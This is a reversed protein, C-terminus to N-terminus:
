FRIRTVGGNNTGIWLNGRKGEVISLIYNDYLGDWRGLKEWRGRRYLLLGKKRTGLFIGGWRSNYVDTPTIGGIGVPTMLMQWRGSSLRYVGRSGAIMINGLYDIGLSPPIINKSYKELERGGSLFRIGIENYESGTTDPSSSDEFYSSAITVEKWSDESFKAIVGDVVAWVVGSADVEMDNVHKGPLYREDSHHIWRDGEFVLIGSDYTGFWVRGSSDAEVAVFYETPLGQRRDFIEWKGGMRRLIGFRTTLWLTGEETEILDTVSGEYWQQPLEVSEVRRDNLKFIKKKTIFFVERHNDGVVLVHDSPFSQPIIYEDVGYQSLCFVRGDTTGLFCNGTLDHHISKFNIGTLDYGELQYRKWGSGDFYSIGGRCAAWIFGDPGLNFAHIDRSPLGQRPGYVRVRGLDLITAGQRPISLFVRGQEDMAIDSVAGIPINSGYRLSKWSFSDAACLGSATAFLISSPSREFVTLVRNDLLSDQLSYHKVLDDNILIAGHGYTSVWMGSEGYVIDTINKFFRYSKDTYHIWGKEGRISIGNNGGVWLRGRYDLEIATVSKSVPYNVPFVSDGSVPHAFLGGETGIWLTDRYSFLANVMRASIYNDAAIGPPLVRSIKEYDPLPFSDGSTIWGAVKPEVEIDEEENQPFVSSISILSAVSVIIVMFKDFRM